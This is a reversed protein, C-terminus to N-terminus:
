LTITETNNIQQSIENTKTTIINDKQNKTKGKKSINSKELKKMRNIIDHVTQYTLGLDKAIESRSLKGEQILARCADSKSKYEVGNYNISQSM